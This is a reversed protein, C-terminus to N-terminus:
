WKSESCEFKLYQLTQKKKEENAQFRRFTYTFCFKSTAGPSTNKDASCKSLFGCSQQWIVKSAIKTWSGTMSWYTNIVRGCYISPTQTIIHLKTIETCVCMHFTGGSSACAPQPLAIRTCLAGSDFTINDITKTMELSKMDNSNIVCPATFTILEISLSDCPVSYQCYSLSYIRM